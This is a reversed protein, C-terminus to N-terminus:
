AASRKRSVASIALRIGSVAESSKRFAMLGYMWSMCSQRLCLSATSCNFDPPFNGFGVAAFVGLGEVEMGFVETAVVLAFCGGASVEVTV